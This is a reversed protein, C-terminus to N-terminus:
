ENSVTGHLVGEKILWNEIMADVRGTALARLAEHRIMKVVRSRRKSCTYEGWLDMQLQRVNCEKCPQAGLQELLRSLRTGPGEPIGHDVAPWRQGCLRCQVGSSKGVIEHVCTVTTTM